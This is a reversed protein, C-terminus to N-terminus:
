LRPQTQQTRTGLVPEIKNVTLNVTEIVNGNQILQLAEM